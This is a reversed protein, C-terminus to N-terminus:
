EEFKAISSHGNRLTSNKEKDHEPLGKLSENASRKSKSIRKKSAQLRRRM